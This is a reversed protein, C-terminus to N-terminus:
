DNGATQAGGDVKGDTLGGTRHWILKRLAKVVACCRKCLLVQKDARRTTFVEKCCVCRQQYCAYKELSERRVKIKNRLRKKWEAQTRM